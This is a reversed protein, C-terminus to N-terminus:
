PRWPSTAAGSVQRRSRPGITAAGDDAAGDEVLPQHQALADARRRGPDAEVGGLHDDTAGEADEQRAGYDPGIGRHGTEALPWRPPLLRPASEPLRRPPLTAVPGGHNRGSAGTAWVEAM